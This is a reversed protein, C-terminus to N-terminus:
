EFGYDFHYSSAAVGVAVEGVPCGCWWAGGRRFGGGCGGIGVGFRCVVGM